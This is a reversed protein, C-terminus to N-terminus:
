VEWCHFQQPFSSAPLTLQSLGVDSIKWAGAGASRLSSEVPTAITLVAVNAAPSFVSVDVDEEKADDVDDLVVEGVCVDDDDPEDIVSEVEDVVEDGDCGWCVSEEGEESVFEGVDELVVVPRLVPAFAPMPM